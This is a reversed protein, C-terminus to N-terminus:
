KVQPCYTAVYENFFFFFVKVLSYVYAGQTTVGQTTRTHTRLYLIDLYIKM